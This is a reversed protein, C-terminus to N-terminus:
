KYAVAQGLELARGLRRGSTSTPCRGATRRRCPTRPTLSSAGRMPQFCGPSIHRSAGAGAGNPIAGPISSGGKPAEGLPNCSLCDLTPSATGAAGYLFIEPDGENPYGTLEGTSVFLLYRGDVSVRATGTAPPWSSTSVADAIKETIAGETMFLGAPEAYFVRSGDPAAGLVGRVAGSSTFSTLTEGAALYRYLNGEDLPHATGGDTSAVEFEPAGPAEAVLKTVNGERLYLGNGDAFYIRADTASVAGNAAGITAGPTGTSEGPLLNVLHLVGGVM